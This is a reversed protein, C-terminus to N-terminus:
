APTAIVAFLLPVYFRPTLGPTEDKAPDPGPLHEIPSSSWGGATIRVDTLADTVERAAFLCRQMDGGVATVQFPWRVMDSTALISTRDRTGNSPYLVCYPHVRGDPDAPPTTPVEADYSGLDPLADLIALVAARYAVPDFATM